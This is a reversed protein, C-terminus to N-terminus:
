PPAVESLRRARPDRAPPPAASVRAARGRHALGLAPKEILTWSFYAFVASIVLALFSLTLATISRSLYAITIQIPWAYLYIGYSLDTENAFISIRLVRSHLAFWFILYGGCTALAFETVAPVFASAILLAAAALAIRGNYVVRDQYLYFLMGVMFIGTLHVTQFPGGFVVYLAGSGDPLFNPASVILCALAAILIGVRLRAYAGTLGLAAVLIYCRFEYPITWASGNVSPMPMGPFVGPLKALSLLLLRLLTQVVNPFQFVSLGAGVLPALVFTCLLINVVFGPYIRLVRKKFYDVVSVSRVFSKTILFGSILFFGDVAIEGFTAPGFHPEFERNGTLISPSHPFIVLCAFFLRLAGFNNDKAHIPGTAM